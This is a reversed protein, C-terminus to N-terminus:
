EVFSNTWEFFSCSPTGMKWDGGEGRYYQGAEIATGLILVSNGSSARGGKMHSNQLHSRTIRIATSPLVNLPLCSM